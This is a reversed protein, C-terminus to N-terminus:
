WAAWTGFDAVMVDDAGSEAEDVGMDSSPAMRSMGWTPVLNPTTVGAKREVSPQLPSLCTGVCIFLSLVLVGGCM